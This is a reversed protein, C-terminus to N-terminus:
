YLEQIGLKDGTGLDKKLTDGLWTYGYMILWGDKLAYLDFLILTHGVEHTMVNQIDFSGSGWTL